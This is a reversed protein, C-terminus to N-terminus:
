KKETMSTSSSQVVNIVARRNMARGDPSRNDGIPQTLGYGKIDKVTFGMGRIFAAVAGARRESLAQNYAAGGVNDTHGEILSISDLKPDFKLMALSIISQGQTTLDHKGTKFAITSDVVVSKKNVTTLRDTVIDAGPVTIPRDKYVVKEVTVEKPKPARAELCEKMGLNKIGSLWLDYAEAGGEWNARVDIKNLRLHRDNILRQLTNWQCANDLLQADRFFACDRDYSHVPTTGSIFNWGVGIAVAGHNMCDSGSALGTTVPAPFVYSTASSNPAYQVGENSAAATGTVASTTASTQAHSLGAFGMLTLSIFLLFIRALHKM